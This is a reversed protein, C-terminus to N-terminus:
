RLIQVFDFINTAFVVVPRNSDLIQLRVFHDRFLVVHHHHARSYVVRGVNRFQETVRREVTLYYVGLVISTGIVIRILGHQDDSGSRGAHVHRLFDNVVGLFHVKPMQHFALQVRQVLSDLLDVFSHDLQVSFYNSKSGASRQVIDIDNQQGGAVLVAERKQM